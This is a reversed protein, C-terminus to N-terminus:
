NLIGATDTTGSTGSASKFFEFKHVNEFKIIDFSPHIINYDKICILRIASRKLIM